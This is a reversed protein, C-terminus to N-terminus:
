QSRGNLDLFTSVGRLNLVFRYEMENITVFDRRAMEVMVEVGSNDTGTRDNYQPTFLVLENENRQRNVGAFQQM